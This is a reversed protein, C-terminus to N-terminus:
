GGVRCARSRMSIDQAKGAPREVVFLRREDDGVAYIRLLNDENIVM